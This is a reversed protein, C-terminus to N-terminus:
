SARNRFAASLRESIPAFTKYHDRTTFLDAGDKSPISSRMVVGKARLESLAEIVQKDDLNTQSAIGQITRWKYRSDELAAIIKQIKDTNEM